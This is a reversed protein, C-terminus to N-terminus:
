APDDYPYNGDGALYKRGNSGIYGIHTWGFQTDVYLYGATEGSVSYPAGNSFNSQFQELAWKARRKGGYQDIWYLYIGQIWFYGATGTGSQLDGNM